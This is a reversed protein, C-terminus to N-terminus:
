KESMLEISTNQKILHQKLSRFSTWDALYYSYKKDIDIGIEKRMKKSLKMYAEKRKKSYASKSVKRFFKRAEESENM